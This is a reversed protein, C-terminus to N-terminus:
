SGSRPAAIMFAMFACILLVVPKVVSTVIDCYPALDIENTGLMTTFVFPPPCQGAGWGLDDPAFAVEVTKKPVEGEPIDLKACGASDPNEACPDKQPEPAAEETTTTETTDTAPNYTANVTTTTNNVVPGVYSYNNTVTTTTVKGDPHNTVKPTGVTSAPGTVTTPTIPIPQGLKIAEVAAKALPASSPWGSESAIADALEQTTAVIPAGGTAGSYSYATFTWTGPDSSPKYNIYCTTADSAPNMEYHAGGVAISDQYTAVNACAALKSSGPLPGVGALLVTFTEGGSKTLDGTTPNVSFDLHTALELLAIPWSLRGVALMARGIGKAVDAKAMQGAVNVVTGNPLTGKSATLLTGDSAVSISTRGIDQVGAMFRTFATASGTVTRPMASVTGDGVVSQAGVPLHALAIGGLCLFAVRKFVPRLRDHM